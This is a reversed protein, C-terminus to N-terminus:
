FRIDILKYVSEWFNMTSSKPNARLTLNEGVDLYIASGSDYTPWVVGLSADPTPNGFIAFNTYLACIQQIMKYSTATKNVPLNLANPNFVYVLDELHSVGTLGYRRGPQGVVNRESVSSFEFLYIRGNRGNSLRRAYRIIPYIFLDTEYSVFIPVTDLFKLPSGTYYQRIVDALQLHTTPTTRYFIDRPVLVELFRRYNAFINSTELLPVIILGENSTYGLLMDVQQQGYKILSLPEGTLFREQSFDKEVVPFTYYGRTTIQIYDEAAIITSNTNILQRVPVTQLFDLLASTNTTEFGLKKGLEFARRRQEFATSFDNIPVGSTGIARRFLGKSMPSLAHLAVSSSGASEGFITVRNPDGGFNKINSQVWRLAAVQDKMGANGPVDVTDLVLFGLNDLRYNITVVVVDNQDILFDPGYLDDNGSGTIYLGGHIFFMVPLPSCPPLSPTYVNLFLCGESGPIYINLLPDFQPCVSGHVTANRIGKWSRAPQPAKFRRSGTPPAAYPIGKFSYFMKDGTITLKQEGELLGQKVRVTVAAVDHCIIKGLIFIVLIVYMEQSQM